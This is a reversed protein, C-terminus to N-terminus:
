LVTGLRLRIGAVFQARTSPSSSMDRAIKCLDEGSLRDGSLVLVPPFNLRIACPLTPPLALRLGVRCPLASGSPSGWHFAIVSAYIVTGVSRYLLPSPTGHEARLHVPMYGYLTRRSLETLLDTLTEAVDPTTRAIRRVISGLDSPAAEFVFVDGLGSFTM